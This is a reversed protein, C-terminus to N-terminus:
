SESWTLAFSGDDKADVSCGMRGCERRLMALLWRADDAHAQEVRFRRVRTPVLALERLRGDAADIRPFYMLGLEGRFQENGGIGEYDNLFDGCGHLVLHGRHVEIAKPHHSSHGYVLDVGATDILAHAFARQEPAIGYGWNGGWHLSFVVVDGARKHRRVEVGIRAVTAMSLDPLLDVGSRRATANWSDPVGSEGTAAAFALVRRAAALPLVLPARAQAMHTGAGAFGIKAARLTALTDALGERGWDLVHNNALMCADIRAAGLVGVNLPDMRYNIGKPWPTDHRTISTELNVIRVDPQRRKWQALADGWVYRAAVARPIHGSASEALALYRRADHVVSEHLAPDSPHGLIQDIGRGLMVDGCLFLRVPPRAVGPARRPPALSAAARSEDVLAGGAVGLAIRALQRLFRRRGLM